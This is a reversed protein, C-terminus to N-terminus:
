PNVEDQKQSRMKSFFRSIRETLRSWFMKISFLSAFLTALLIQLLFSGSGLDVYAHAQRTTVILIFGVVLLVSFGLSGVQRLMLTDGRSRVNIREFFGSQEGWEGENDNM